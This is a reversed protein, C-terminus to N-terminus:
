RVLSNNLLSKGAQVENSLLPEPESWGCTKCFFRSLPTGSLTDPDSYEQLNEAGEITIKENEITLNNAAAAGATKKCNVCHCVHGRRNGNFLDPDNVKVKIKGCNCTGEM